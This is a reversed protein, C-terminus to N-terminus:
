ALLNEPELSLSMPQLSDDSLFSFEKSFSICFIDFESKLPNDLKGVPLTNELYCLHHSIRSTAKVQRQVEGCYHQSDDLALLCYRNQGLM